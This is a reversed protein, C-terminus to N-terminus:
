DIRGHDSRAVHGLHRRNRGSRSSWNKVGPAHVTVGSRQKIEAGNDNRLYQAAWLSAALVLLLSATAVHVRIKSRLM